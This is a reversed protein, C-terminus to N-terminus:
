WGILLHHTKSGAKLPYGIDVVNHESGITGYMSYLLVSTNAPESAAYLGLDYMNEIYTMDVSAATFSSTTEDHTVSVYLFKRGGASYKFRETITLAM